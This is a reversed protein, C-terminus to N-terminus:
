NSSASPASSCDWRWRSTPRRWRRAALAFILFGGILANILNFSLLMKPARRHAILSGIIGILVVAGVASLVVKSSSPDLRDAFILGEDHSNLATEDNKVYFIFLMGAILANIVNFALLVNPSFRNSMLFGLLAVVVILASGTVIMRVGPELSGIGRAEPVLETQPQDQRIEMPGNLKATKLQESTLVFSKFVTLRTMPRTSLQNTQPDTFCPTSVLKDVVDMGSEVRGFITYHGDLHPTDGLLISFSSEGSNPDNDAHAMSLVGRVHKLESFEAKIPHLAEKLDASLAVPKDQANSIQLVFGPAVRHFHTLDYAGLRALKLLQATHAPAVEPYLGLVIDGCITRLVIHDDAVKPGAAPDAALAFGTTLLIASALCSIKSKPNQIKSQCVKGIWFGFDLIWFRATTM